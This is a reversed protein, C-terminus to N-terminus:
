RPSTDRPRGMAALGCCVLLAVALEIGRMGVRGFMVRWDELYRRNASDAHAM